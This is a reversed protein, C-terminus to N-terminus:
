GGSEAARAAIAVRQGAQREIRGALELELLAEMLVALPLESTRVLQDITVPNPGLLDEVTQRAEALQSEDALPAMEGLGPEMLQRVPPQELPTRLMGQLAETVDEASEVLVAGQRLLKNCGRARPDLPSGPVAFVERGQELALRATILSGSRPTAEVVVVGLSLGSILRNRRPFHRAQPVTGLPMESLVVGREVIEEYLGRNEEPYVVDIGGALVAATGNDLAGQHAAADIGRAMGSVVLYDARGLDAALQKALRRGNASANRAGVVAIAPRELFEAQGLLVVVPPADDTAALAAPYGAEGQCMLQASAAELDELEREAAAKPYVRIPRHRGGRRALEPLGALAAEATGYRALLQRYTIPGVNESRSLRLCALREEQTWTRGDAPDAEFPSM